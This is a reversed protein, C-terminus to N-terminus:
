ALVALVLSAMVALTLPWRLKPYWAPVEKKQGAVLDLLMLVFFAAALILLAQRAPMLLVWWGILSPIVSLI